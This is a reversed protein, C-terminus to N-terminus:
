SHPLKFRRQESVRDKERERERESGRERERDRKSEIKRERWKDLSPKYDGLLKYDSYDSHFCLTQKLNISMIVTIVTFICHKLSM